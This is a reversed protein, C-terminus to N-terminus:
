VLTLSTGCERCFKANGKNVTGCTVCQPKIHVTIPTQIQQGEVEGILKMVLVHKIGDTPFWEGHVFKQESVSGPVTIGADNLSKNSHKKYEVNPTKSRVNQLSCNQAQSVGGATSSLTGGIQNIYASSSAGASGSTSYSDCVSSADTSSISGLVSNGYYPYYRIPEREFEYVIRVLGDEAKIGRPGNEIKETREIFKFRNGVNMNGNKIYREIDVTRNAPIIIQTGTVDVGDIEITALARVSNLNKFSLSFESGFPLAVTEGRERLVKGNVKVSVAMKNQYMM